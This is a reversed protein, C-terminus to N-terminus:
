CNVYILDLVAYCVRLLHRHLVILLVVSCVYRFLQCTSVVFESCNVCIFVRYLLIEDILM